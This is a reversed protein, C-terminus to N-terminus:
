PFPSIRQEGDKSSPSDPTRAPLLALSTFYDQLLRHRFLYGAGVKRLLSCQAAHNLFHIYNRPVVGARQLLWFLIGHHIYAMGGGAIWGVLGAALGSVFAVSLGTILGNDLGSVLGGLLAGVCAFLLGALRANQASRHMGFNPTVLDPPALTDSSLGHELLTSLLGILLGILLASAPRFGTWTEVKTWLGIGGHGIPLFVTTGSQTKENLMQAVMGSIMTGLFWGGLAGILGSGLIRPFNKLVNKWSWRVVEIPRIREGRRPNVVGGLLRGALAFCLAFILGVCLAGVLWVFPGGLLGTLLGCFLTLILGLAL